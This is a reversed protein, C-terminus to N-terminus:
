GALGSAIKLELLPATPASGHPDPGAAALSVFLKGAAPERGSSSGEAVPCEILREHGM